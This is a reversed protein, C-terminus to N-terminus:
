EKIGAMIELENKIVTLSSENNYKLKELYERNVVANIVDEKCSPNSVPVTVVLKTEDDMTVTAKVVIKNIEIDVSNIKYM